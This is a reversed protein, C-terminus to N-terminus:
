GRLRLWDKQYAFSVVLLLVGMGLFSLVRYGQGQHSIGSLFVLAISLAFLALAQWRMFASRRLFGATILVAGYVMCCAGYGLDAMSSRREVQGYAGCHDRFFTAGCFWYHHIELCAGLLMTLGFAIGAFNRLKGTTLFAVGALVAVAALTTAWTQTGLVLRSLEVYVALAVVIPAALRIAASTAMRTVAVLALGELLWCLTLASGHFELPVAVTVFFVCLGIYAQCIQAASPVRALLLCVGALIITVLPRGSAGFLWLLAIWTVLANAAPFGASLEPQGLFPMAAFCAFLLSLFFAVLIQPPHDATITWGISYGATGLLAAWALRKWPYRTLLFLAGANLLVLYAFLFWPTGREVSLLAPTALGGGLAYAALVESSQRSALGANALTIATM